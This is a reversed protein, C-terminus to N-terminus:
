IIQAMLCVCRPVCMCLLGCVVCVLVCICVLVGGYSVGRVMMFHVVAVVLVYGVFFVFM